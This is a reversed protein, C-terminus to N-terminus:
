KANDLIRRKFDLLYEDDPAKNIAADFIKLAQEKKGLVWLVEAIHAAIENEQQKSYARQLYDLAQQHRGLKYQLWGYSDLIVAEDPQLALARRLYKEADAYRTTKDALSYGLANLAEASDPNKELIKKLDAEMMSPNGIREAMLARMYLLDKDDPQALLAQTLLEFAKQYHKQQNFM